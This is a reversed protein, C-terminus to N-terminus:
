SSGDSSVSMSIGGVCGACSATCVRLAEASLSETSADRDQVSANRDRLSETSFCRCVDGVPRCGAALAHEGVTIGLGPRRSKATKYM